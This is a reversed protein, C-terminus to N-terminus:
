LGPRRVWEEAEAVTAFMRINMGRNVAVTEAFQMHATPHEPNVDVYAIRLM